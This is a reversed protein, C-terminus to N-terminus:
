NLRERMRKRLEALHALADRALPDSAAQAQLDRETDDFSALLLDVNGSSRCAEVIRMLTEKM